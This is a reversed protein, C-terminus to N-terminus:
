CLGSLFRGREEILRRLYKALVLREAMRGFVGFPASFTVRDIMIVGEGDPEFWHEHRFKRFPGQTQEDVFYRGPSFSTVKSTLSFALGFHRARWTVSEGLGIRGEVVGAVAREGSAVQSSIHEAIDRARDFMEEPSCRATTVSEFSVTM